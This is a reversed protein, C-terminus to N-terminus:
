ALNATKIENIRSLTEEIYKPMSDNFGSWEFEIADLDIDLSFKLKALSAM